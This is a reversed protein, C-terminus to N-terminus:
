ENGEKARATSILLKFIIPLLQPNRDIFRELSELWEDDKQTPTLKVITEIIDKFM